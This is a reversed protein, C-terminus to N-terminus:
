RATGNTMPNVSAREVPGREGLPTRGKKKPTQIHPIGRWNCITRSAPIRAALKKRLSHTSRLIQVGAM